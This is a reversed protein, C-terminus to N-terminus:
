GGRVQSDMRAVLQQPTAMSSASASASDSGLTDGRRSPRRGRMEQASTLPQVMPPQTGGPVFPQVMPPQTGGPVFNSPNIPAFQASQDPNRANQDGFPFPPVPSLGPSTHQGSPSGHSYGPSTHQGSPSGYLTPVISPSKPSGMVPQSQGAMSPAVQTDISSNSVAVARAHLNTNEQQLRQMELRTRLLEDRASRKEEDAQNQVSRMAEAHQRQLEHQNQQTQQHERLSADTLNRTILEKEQKLRGEFQQEQARARQEAERQVREVENQALANQQLLVAQAQQVIAAERHQHGTEVSQLQHQLEQQRLHAANLHQWAEAIIAPDNTQVAFHYQQQVARMDINHVHQEFNNQTPAYTASQSWPTDHMEYDYDGEFWDLRPTDIRQPFVGPPLSPVMHYSADSLAHQSGPPAYASQGQSSSSPASQWQTPARTASQGPQPFPTGRNSKAKRKPMRESSESSINLPAGPTAVAPAITVTRSAASKSRKM